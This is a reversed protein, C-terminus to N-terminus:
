EFAHLAIFVCAGLRVACGSYQIGHHVNSRETSAFVTTSHNLHDQHNRAMSDIGHLEHAADNGFHNGDAWFVPLVEM